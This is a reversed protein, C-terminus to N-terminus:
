AAAEQPAPETETTSTPAPPEAEPPLDMFDRAEERTMWGKVPDLAATLYTAQAAPDARLLAKLDFRAEGGDSFLDEDASIAQEILTLWPSLSFVLYGRAQDAVTSYTLSGGADAALMWPQLHFIRCVDLTSLKRTEIFASDAPPMSTPHFTVDGTAVGLKGKNKPGKHRGELDTLLARAADEAGPGPPVSFLGSVEAGNQWTAAAAESLSMGLSMAERCLRIPSAGRVGDVSVGKIWILDDRTLGTRPPQSVPQYTFQAEGGVIQEVAIADPPLPALQAVEGNPDRWKGVFAEGHLCLHTMVQALLAAQTLSPSPRRLLAATPSATDRETTEGSEAYADLPCLIAGDALVRIAGFVDAIGAAQRIGPADPASPDILWAEPLKERTLTRDEARRDRFRRLPSRLPM